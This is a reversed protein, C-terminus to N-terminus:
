NKRGKWNAFHTRTVNETLKTLTVELSYALM